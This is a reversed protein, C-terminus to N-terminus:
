VVNIELASLFEVAVNLELAYGREGLGKLVKNVQKSEVTHVGMLDDVLRITRARMGDKSSSKTIYGKKEMKNLQCVVSNSSSYGFYTQIERITPSYRHERMFSLLFNYINQQVETLPSRM